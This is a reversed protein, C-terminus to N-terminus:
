FIVFDSPKSEQDDANLTAIAYYGKSQVSLSNNTTIALVKGDSKLDSFYYVVSKVDGSTTWSIVNNSIKVNQASAPVPSVARGVFPRVAPNKYLEALKDTIGIRNLLIYKASYMASGVVKKRTKILDFQKQLEASSQFAAPNTADGFKYFGHGIVLAAKYNFQHWFGLNAKFDNSANGIEQYLQPIVIDVWGEQCWKTVNAYLTNMNYANSPAPSVSFAVAPRTAVIVDYVSKIAKDVNARRFDGITKYEVGYTKYDPDDSVMSGATSPDPYFYDDFHIGDINYKTVIEKVIDSLRQRVEPMAPNYIQIKEHSVIWESKISPHLAPYAQTTGTRTSIRYPNMWAHFKIDRAHAEDILFKLVDYGPDKGRTGTIAASWPEYSSNYFADGLGKVQFYITNINLQKFKDLYEIYKAKQAAEYYATEPWDLGWATTMWVARMEKRPFIPGTEIVEPDTITLDKDSDKTCSFLFASCFLIIIAYIFKEKM